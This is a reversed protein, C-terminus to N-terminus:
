GRTLTRGRSFHQWIERLLEIQQLCDDFAIHKPIRSVHLSPVFGSDKALAQATRLCMLKRYPLPDALNFSNFFSKIIPFDFGAGKCWVYGTVEAVESSIARHISEVSQSIGNGELLEQMHLRSNMPIEEKRLQDEWWGLTSESLTRGVAEQMAIAPRYSSPRFIESTETFSVLGIELIIASPQTDLTEIDIMLHRM